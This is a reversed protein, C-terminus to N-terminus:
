QKKQGGIAATSVTFAEKDSCYQVTGTYQVMQCLDCVVSSCYVRQKKKQQPITSLHCRNWKDYRGGKKGKINTKKMEAMSDERSGRQQARMHSRPAPGSIYEVASLGGLYIIRFINIGSSPVMLRVEIDGGMARGGRWRGHVSGPGDEGPQAGRSDHPWERSLELRGRRLARSTGGASVEGLRGPAGSLGSVIRSEGGDNVVRGIEDPRAALFM